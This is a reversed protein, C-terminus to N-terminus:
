QRLFSNTLFVYCVHYSYLVLVSYYLTNILSGISLMSIYTGIINYMEVFTADVVMTHLAQKWKKFTINSSFVNVNIVHKYFYIFIGEELFQVSIVRNMEM